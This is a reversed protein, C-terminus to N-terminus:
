LKYIVQTLKVQYIVSLKKTNAGALLAAVSTLVVPEMYTQCFVVVHFHEVVEQGRARVVCGNKM